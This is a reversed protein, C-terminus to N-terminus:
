GQMSITGIEWSIPTERNEPNDAALPAEIM